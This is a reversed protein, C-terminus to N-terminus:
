RPPGRGGGSAGPAGMGVEKYRVRGAESSGGGRVMVMEVSEVEGAGARGRAGGARRRWPRRTANAAHASPLQHRHDQSPAFPVLSEAEAQSCATWSGPHADHSSDPVPLLAVGQLWPVGDDFDITSVDLAKAKSLYLPFIDPMCPSYLRVTLPNTVKPLHLCNQLFVGSLSFDDQQNVSSTFSEAVGRRRLLAREM